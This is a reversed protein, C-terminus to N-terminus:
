KYIVEVESDASSRNHLAIYSKAIADPDFHTGVEVTGCITVTGVHIGFEKLEQALCFTLSRLGSKGIALSVLDADPYLALGGGTLLITGKKSTKMAPIVQQAAVLAGIVNVNFDAILKEPTLESPKGMAMVAANYILVEPDALKRIETFAQILSEQNGADAAFTYVTYGAQRLEQANVELKELNRAMLALSYGEKAFAKAVGMSVGAGFGAIACIPQNM